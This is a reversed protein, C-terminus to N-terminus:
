FQLVSLSVRRNREKERERENWGDVTHDLPQLIVFFVPASRPRQGNHAASSLRLRELRRPRVDVPTNFVLKERKRPFLESRHTEKDGSISTRNM